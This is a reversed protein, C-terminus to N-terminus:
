CWGPPARHGPRRHHQDGAIPPVELLYWSQPQVIPGLLSRGGCVPSTTMRHATAAELSPATPRASCPRPASPKCRGSRRRKRKWGCSVGLTAIVESTLLQPCIRTLNDAHHQGPPSPTWRCLRLWDYAGPAGAARRPTAGVKRADTPHRGRERGSPTKCGRLAMSPSVVGPRRRPRSGSCVQQPTHTWHRATQLGEPTVSVQQAMAWMFGVLARAIAVGVQHAQTGRAVRRRSRPCRRGQAQWRIAPLAKSHKALRVQLPRRVKAPSRSAWAGEGRARRAPPHGAKPLAGQRRRAGSSDAAPRLGVCKRLARPTAFRPLPGLAAVTIGAGPGQVGRRAQLAAGVPSLRWAKGQEHLAQALRQRRATPDHVARVEAPLGLPPAPTPGVVAARWRLPAPGWNAQGPYRSEPRLWFAKLRVTTDQLDRLAEERARTRDRRAEEEVQAVSVATRDGARALRAWPVADRRDTKGRDRAKPPLLSPAVGGCDSGKKMLYRYLWSGCPGAASVCLRPQATSPMTRMRQEMDCQRTGIRGLAPVAAGHHQAVSAVAIADKHGDRGSCRPRSQAM